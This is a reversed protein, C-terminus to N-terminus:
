RKLVAKITLKEPVYDDGKKVTVNIERKVTYESLNSPLFPVDWKVILNQNEINLNTCGCDGTASVIPYRSSFTVTLQKRNNFTSPTIEGFDHTTKRFASM